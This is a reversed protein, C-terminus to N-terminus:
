IPMNMIEQYASIVRDRVASVSELTMEANSVATVVDVLDAEGAVAQISATEASAVAQSTDEVLSEVMSGFGTDSGSRGVADGGELGAGGARNLAAGYANAADFAKMEM